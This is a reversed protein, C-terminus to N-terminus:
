NTKEVPYFAKAVPGGCHFTYRAAYLGITQKTFGWVQHDNFNEQSEASYNYDCGLEKFETEYQYYLANSVDRLNTPTSVFRNSEKKLIPIATETFTAANKVSDANYFFDYFMHCTMVGEDFKAATKGCSYGHHIEAPQGVAETIDAMVAQMQKDVVAYDAKQQKAQKNVNQQHFFITLGFFLFLAGLVYVVWRWSFNMGSLPKKQKNPSSPKAM